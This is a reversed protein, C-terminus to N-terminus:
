DAYQGFLQKLFIEIFATDRIDESIAAIRVTVIGKKLAVSYDSVNIKPEGMHRVQHLNSLRRSEVLSRFASAKEKKTKAGVVIEFADRALKTAYFQGESLGMEIIDKGLYYFNPMKDSLNHEFRTRDPWGVLGCKSCYVMHADKGELYDVFASPSKDEHGPFPCHIVTKSTIDVIPVSQGNELTVRIGYDFERTPRNAKESIEEYEPLIDLDLYDGDFWEYYEADEPSAFIFRALDRTASDM